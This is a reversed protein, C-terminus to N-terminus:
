GNTPANRESCEQAERERERKKRASVGEREDMWRM